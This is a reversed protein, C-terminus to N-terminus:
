PEDLALEQCMCLTALKCKEGNEMSMAVMTIRRLVLGKQAEDVFFNGIKGHARM